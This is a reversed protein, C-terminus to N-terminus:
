AISLAPMKGTVEDLQSRSTFGITFAGLCDLQVAHQIARNVENAMQGQGLIKM